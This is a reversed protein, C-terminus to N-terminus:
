VVNYGIIFVVQYSPHPFDEIFHPSFGGTAFITVSTIIDISTNFLYKDLIFLRSISAIAFALVLSSLKAFGGPLRPFNSSIATVSAPM